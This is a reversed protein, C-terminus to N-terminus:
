ADARQLAEWRGGYRDNKQESNFAMEGIVTIGAGMRAPRGREWPPRFGARRFDNEALSMRSRPM